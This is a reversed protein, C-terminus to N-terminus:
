SLQIRVLCRSFTFRFKYGDEQPKKYLNNSFAVIICKLSSMKFIQLIPTHQFRQTLIQFGSIERISMFYKDKQIM